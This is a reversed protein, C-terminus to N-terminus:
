RVDGKLARHVVVGRAVTMVIRGSFRRGVFCSNSSRSAWGGEGAVWEAGPDFLALNAEAGAAIQPADFGFPICGFTM